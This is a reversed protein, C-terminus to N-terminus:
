PAIVDNVTAHLDNDDGCWVTMKQSHLPSEHLVRPDEVSLYCKNQKNAFGKLWFYAENNFIIKCPFVDDQPMKELAWESFTRRKM